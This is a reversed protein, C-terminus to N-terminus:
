RRLLSLARKWAPRGYAFVGYEMSGSLTPRFAQLLLRERVSSAWVKKWPEDDGLFEYSRLGSGFAREIMEYRLLMGPGYARYAPDYGTKLLYHCSREEISFDVAIAREDLRLFVLRLSGREAAWRAIETYFRTTEPSSGIATGGTQKWAAGEVRFLEHLLEDLGVRGNEVAVTLTGAKELRRRRRRLEQKFHAALGGTYSDWAGRTDIFPSRELTRSILRYRANTAASRLVGSAELPLFAAQLRRPRRAFLAEALEQEAADDLAVLAFAPTHYNSPAILSPGRREFPAGAVLQGNRRVTVLELRGRGFARRWALLWGARLWPLSSATRDVLADWEDAWAEIGSGESQDTMSDRLMLAKRITALLPIPLLKLM